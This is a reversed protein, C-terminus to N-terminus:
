TNIFIIFRSIIHNIFTNAKVAYVIGTDKPLHKRFYKVRKKLEDIDFVYYPTQYKNYLELYDM